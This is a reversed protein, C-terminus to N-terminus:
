QNNLSTPPHVLDSKSNAARHTPILYLIKKKPREHHLLATPYM